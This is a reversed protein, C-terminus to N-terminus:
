GGGGMMGAKEKDQVGAGMLTSVMANTQGKPTVGSVNRRVYERRSTPSKLSMSVDPQPHTGEGGSFIVLQEIEPIDYLKAMLRLFGEMNPVMGQQVLLQALPIIYQGMLREATAGMAAPTQPTMSYPQISFTYDGFDGAREGRFNFPLGSGMFDLEFGFPVEAKIDPDTNWLFWALREVADSLLAQTLAAMDQVQASANKMLMEDQGLTGSQPSLGGLADVNGTMDNHLDLLKLVFAFTNTDPGPFNLPTVTPDDLRITDGDSAKVIRSGTADPGGRVITLNKQRKTQRDLKRLGENASDHLDLWHAAPAVPMLNGPLDMYSLLLYPGSPPGFWPNVALPQADEDRFMVIVNQHAVWVENFEIFPEIEDGLQVKGRGITQVKEQGFELNDTWETPTLKADPRFLHRVERIPCRCRHGIFGMREWRKASFDVVLDDLDVNDAYISHGYGIKMVSVGLLAEQVAKRLTVGFGITKMLANIAAEMKAAFPMLTQKSTRVWVKPAHPALLRLFVGVSQALKNVLLKKQSGNSSYHAGASERIMIRRNERFPEGFRRGAVVAAKLREFEGRDVSRGVRADSDIDMM